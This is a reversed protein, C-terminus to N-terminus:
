RTQNARDLEVERKLTLLVTGTLCLKVKDTDRPKNEIGSLKGHGRRKFAANGNRDEVRRKRPLPRPKQKGGLRAESCPLNEVLRAISAIM